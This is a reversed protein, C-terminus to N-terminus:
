AAASGHKMGEKLMNQFLGDGHITFSCGLKTLLPVMDHMFNRAYQIWEPRTEFIKDGCLVNLRSDDGHDGNHWGTHSKGESYSCDLGYLIFHRYGLTYGVIIANLGIAQVSPHVLASVEAEKIADLTAPEALHWMRIKRGEVMDFCRPHCTSALLYTVDDHPQELFHSKRERPDMEAHYDPIVGNSILYTHAGSVTILDAGKSVNEKLSGLGERLSPGYGGVILPNSKEDMYHIRPVKRRCNRMINAIRESDDGCGGVNLDPVLQSFPASAGEVKATM